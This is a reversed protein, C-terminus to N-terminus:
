ANSPCYTPYRISLKIMVRVAKDLDCDLLSHRATIQSVLPDDPYGLLEYEHALALAEVENGMEDHLSIQKVLPWRHKVQRSLQKLVLLASDYKNQKVYCDVVVKHFDLWEIGKRKSQRNCIEIADDYLGIELKKHM